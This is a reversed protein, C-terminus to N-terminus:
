FSAKCLQAFASFLWQGAGLIADAAVPVSTLLSPISQQELTRPLLPYIAKRPM